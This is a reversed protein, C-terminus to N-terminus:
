EHRHEHDELSQLVAAWSAPTPCPRKKLWAIVKALEQKAADERVETFAAVVADPGFGKTVAVIGVRDPDGGADSIRDRVQEARGSVADASIAAPEPDSMGAAM